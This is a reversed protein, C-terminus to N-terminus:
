FGTVTVPQGPKYLGSKVPKARVRFVLKDNNERSYVLPPAYEAEPAIYAVVAESSPCAACSLQITQGTHLKPLLRVPVFFDIWIYQPMQIAAIPKGAPVWEGEVFFTDSVKGADPAYRSKQALQWKFFDKKAIVAKIKAAQSFIQEERAGLKLFELEYEKQKKLAQLEEFRHKAADSKDLNGAKREYLERFRKMRIKALSLKSSIQNVQEIAANIEPKRKPAKLDALLAQEEALVGNIADVQLAEPNADLQFILDGKKVVDGRAVPLSRLTGSYPSTLYLDESEAYGQASHKTSIDCANLSLLIFLLCFQM